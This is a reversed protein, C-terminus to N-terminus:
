SPLKSVISALNQAANAHDEQTKANALQNFAIGLNSIFAQPNNGSVANVWGMFSRILSIIGPLATCVGCIASWTGATAVATTASAAASSIVEIDAEIKQITPDTALTSVAVDAATPTTM